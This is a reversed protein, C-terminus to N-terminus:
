HHDFMRFMAIYSNIMYQQNYNPTLCDQKELSFTSALGDNYAIQWASGNSLIGLFVMPAMVNNAVEKGYSYM